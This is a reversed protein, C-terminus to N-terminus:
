EIFADNVFKIVLDKMEESMTEYSDDMAECMIIYTGGVVRLVAIGAGADVVFYNSGNGDSEMSYSIGFPFEETEDAPIYLLDMLFKKLEEFNAKDSLLASVKATDEDADARDVMVAIQTSGALFEATDPESLDNVRKLAWEDEYPMVIKGLLNVSMGIEDAVVEKAYKLVKKKIKSSIKVQDPYAVGYIVIFRDDINRIVLYDSETDMSINLIAMYKGNSDKKLSIDKKTFEAGYMCEMNKIAKSIKAKSSKKTLLKALKGASSVTKTSNSIVVYVEEDSSNEDYFTIIGEERDERTWNKEVPALIGNIRAKDMSKKTAANTPTWLIGAMMCALIILSLIKRM